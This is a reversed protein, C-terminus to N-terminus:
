AARRLFAPIELGDQNAAAAMEAPYTREVYAVAEEVTTMPAPKQAALHDTWSWNMGLGKVRLEQGYREITKAKARREMEVAQAALEPHFAALWDIETKKSGPCMFCASKKPLPLGAAVIQRKCEERDWGWVQLPYVNDHGPPWKEQAKQQRRKDAPGNDYGVLKTIRSTPSLTFRGEPREKAGRPKRAQKWGFQVKCWKLQPEIKWKISCSHHGYALSPLVGKRLCEAHLSTDGAVPSPNRVITVRPYGVKDLWANITDLYAYTEPTESGTDAWLIAAPRPLGKAQWGVLMATSDVGMGYAVVVPNQPSTM